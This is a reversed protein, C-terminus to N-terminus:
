RGNNRRIPSYSVVIMLSSRTRRVYQPEIPKGMHVPAKQGPIFDERLTQIEADLAYVLGLGLSGGGASSRVALMLGPGLTAPAQNEELGPSLVVLPGLGVRHDRWTWPMVSYLAALRIDRNLTQVVEVRDEPDLRAETIVPDGFFHAGAFAFGFNSGAFKLHRKTDEISRATRERVDLETRTTTETTRDLRRQLEPLADHVDEQGKLLGSVLSRNFPRVREAMGLCDLLEELRRLQSRTHADEGSVRLTATEEASCPHDEELRPGRGSDTDDSLAPGTALVTCLLAYAAVLGATEALRMSAKEEEVMNTVNKM